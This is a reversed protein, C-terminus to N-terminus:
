KKKKRQNQQPPPPPPEEPQKRQLFAGAVTAVGTGSFVAAALAEHNIIALYLASGLMGVIVLVAAGIGLVPHWYDCTAAHRDMKHSHHQQRVAMDLIERASRYSGRFWNRNAVFHDQFV